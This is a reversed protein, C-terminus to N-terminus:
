PEYLVIQRSLSLAHDILSRLIRASWEVSVLNDCFYIGDSEICVYGVPWNEKDEVGPVSLNYRGPGADYSRFFPRSRLFEGFSMIAQEDCEIKYERGM